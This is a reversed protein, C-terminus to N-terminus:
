VQIRRLGEALWGANWHHKMTPRPLFAHDVGADVLATSFRSMEEHFGEGSILILQHQPSMVDGFAQISRIPLDAQWAEDDAYFPSTGWPPLSQRVVPADFIITACPKRSMERSLNWAGLGSKSFGILVFSDLDWARIQADAEQRVARNYWVVDPFCVSRVCAEPHGSIRAPIVGYNLNAPATAPLFVMNM